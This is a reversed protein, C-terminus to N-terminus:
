TPLCGQVVRNRGAAKARYLAEDAHRLLETNESGVQPVLTCVGVSVTVVADAGAQGNPIKQAAVLSCIETAVRHAGQPSTSALMVTFEEGGYRAVVDSPRTACSCLVSAIRRLCDDGAQHGLRDNFLKFRDVDIM